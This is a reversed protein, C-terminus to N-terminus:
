SCQFAYMQWYDDPFDLVSNILVRDIISNVIVIRNTFFRVRFLNISVMAGDTWPRQDNESRVSPSVFAVAGTFFKVEM